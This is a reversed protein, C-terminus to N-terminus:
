AWVDLWQGVRMDIPTAVEILEVCEVQTKQARYPWPRPAPPVPEVEADSRETGNTAPVPRQVLTKAAASVAPSWAWVPRRLWPIFEIYPRLPRCYWSQVPGCANPVHGGGNVGLKGRRVASVAM